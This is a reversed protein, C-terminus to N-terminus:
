KEKLEVLEGSGFLPEKINNRLHEAWLAAAGDAPALESFIKLSEAFKRKEALELAL